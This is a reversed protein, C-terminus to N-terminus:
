WGVTGFAIALPAICYHAVNTLVNRKTQKIFFGHSM